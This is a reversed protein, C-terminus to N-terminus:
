STELTTGEVLTKMILNIKNVGMPQVTYWIQANQKRKHNIPLYFPGENQFQSPRRRKYEKFLQVPCREGGTEFM